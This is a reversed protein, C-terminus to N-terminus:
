KKFCKPDKKEDWDYGDIKKCADLDNAKKALEAKNEADGAGEKMAELASKTASEAADRAHGDSDKM